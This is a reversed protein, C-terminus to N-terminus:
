GGKFANAGMVLSATGGYLYGVEVAETIEAETAGTARANDALTKVGDPHAAITDTIMGMLFKYKAPIAGDRLIRERMTTYSDAFQPDRQQIATLWPTDATPGGPAPPPVPDPEARSSATLPTVGLFVAVLTATLCTKLGNLMSNTM